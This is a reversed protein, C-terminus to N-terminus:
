HRAAHLRRTLSHRGPFLAIADAYAPMATMVEDALRAAATVEVHANMALYCSDVIVSAVRFVYDCRRFCERRNWGLYRRFFGPWEHAGTDRDKIGQAVGTGARPVNDGYLPNTAESM